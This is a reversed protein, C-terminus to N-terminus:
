PHEILDYLNNIFCQVLTVYRNGMSFPIWTMDHQVKEKFEPNDFREPIFEEPNKFVDEDHHIADIWGLVITGKPINYKGITTNKKAVSKVVSLVPPHLRLSEMIVSNVHSLIGYDDYTPDRSGIAQTIEHYM